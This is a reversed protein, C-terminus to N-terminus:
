KDVLAELTKTLIDLSRQQGYDTNYAASQVAVVLREGPVVYIKNGGNGSAFFYDVQRGGIPLSHLYWSYGYEGYGDWPVDFRGRTSADVWDEPVVQVGDWRGESLYLQGFKAM